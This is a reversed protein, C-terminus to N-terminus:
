LWSCSNTRWKQHTKFYVWRTQRLPIPLSICLFPDFTNSQKLCHPCTLSSRSFCVCLSRKLLAPWLSVVYCANQCFFFFFWSILMVDCLGKADDCKSLNLLFARMQEEFHVFAFKELTFCPLNCLVLVTWRSEIQRQSAVRSAKVGKSMLVCRIPFALNQM